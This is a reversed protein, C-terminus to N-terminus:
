LAKSVGLAKKPRPLLLVIEPRLQLFKFGLFLTGDGGRGEGGGEGGSCGVPPALLVLGLFGALLVFWTEGTTGLFTYLRLVFFTILELTELELM